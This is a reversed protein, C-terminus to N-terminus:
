DRVRVIVVGGVGASNYGGSGNTTAPSSKGGQAYQIASGTISSTHGTTGSGGAGAGNVGNASTFMALGGPHGFGAANLINGASAPNNGYGFGGGGALLYSGFSSNGGNSGAPSGSAGGGGVTVSITGAPVYLSCEIAEGAGGGGVVSSAAGSGGGGGVVLVDLYGAQTITLTGNSVYEKYKYTVSGSTYTGTATDSFDADQPANVPSWASSQYKWLRNLDTTLAYRGDVPSPIAANRAAESAFEVETTFEVWTANDYFWLRDNDTTFAFMGHDPGAIAADRAAESNFVLIGQMLYANIDAAPLVQGDVFVKFGGAPM